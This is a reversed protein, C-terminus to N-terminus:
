SIMSWWILALHRRIRLPAQCLEPALVRRSFLENNRALPDPGFHGARRCAGRLLGTQPAARFQKTASGGPLSSHSSNEAWEGIEPPPVGRGVSPRSDPLIPWSTLSGGRAAAHAANKTQVKRWAGPSSGAFGRRRM